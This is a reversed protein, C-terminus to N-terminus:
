VVCWVVCMGVSVSVCVCVCVCLRVSARACSATGSRTAHHTTTDAAIDHFGTDSCDGHAPLVYGATAEKPLVSYMTPPEVSEPSTKLSTHIYELSLPSARQAALM